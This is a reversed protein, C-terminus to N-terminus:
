TEEQSTAPLFLRFRRSSISEMRLKPPHSKPWPALRHRVFWLGIRASILEHCIPSWFSKKSISVEVPNPDGELELTVSPWERSFYFDRDAISVKIGYGAGTPRPNGNSWASVIM